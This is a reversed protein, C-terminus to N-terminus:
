RALVDSVSLLGVCLGVLKELRGPPGECTALFSVSTRLAVVVLWADVVLM